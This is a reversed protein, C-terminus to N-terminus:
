FISGTFRDSDLIFKISATLIMKNPIKYFSAEGYLLLDTLATESLKFINVNIVKLDDLLTKCINNYYHCHLFFHTTSQAELTSTYLPNICGKFNQSFRHENLHSLGLGLITLLRVGPPNHTNYIPKSLPPVSKLLYNRFVNSTAKRCQFDLKKWQVITWPFFYYKTTDTSCCYTTINKSFPTNYSLTHLPILKFLYSPFGFNKIKNFLIITQIM